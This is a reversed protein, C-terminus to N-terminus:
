TGIVKKCICQYNYHCDKGTVNNFSVADVQGDVQSYWSYKVCGGPGHNTWAPESFTNFNKRSWVGEQLNKINMCEHETLHVSCRKSTRIEIDEIVSTIFICVFVLYMYTVLELFIFM